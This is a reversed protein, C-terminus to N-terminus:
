QTQKDHTYNLEDSNRRVTFIRRRFNNIFNDTINFTKFILTM